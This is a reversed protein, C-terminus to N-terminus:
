AERIKNMAVKGIVKWWPFETGKGTRPISLKYGNDKIGVNAKTQTGTEM